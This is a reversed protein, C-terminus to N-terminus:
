RSAVFNAAAAAATAVAVVVLMVLPVRTKARAYARACASFTENQTCGFPPARDSYDGNLAVRDFLFEVAAVLAAQESAPQKIM